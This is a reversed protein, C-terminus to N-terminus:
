MCAARVWAGLCEGKDANSASPASWLLKGYALEGSGVISLDECWPWDNNVRQSSYPFGWGLLGRPLGMGEHRM